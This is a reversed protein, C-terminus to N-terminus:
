GRGSCEEAARRMRDWVDDGKQMIITAARRRPLTAMSGEQLIRRAADEITEGPRKGIGKTVIADVEFINLPASM